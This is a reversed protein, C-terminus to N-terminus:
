SSLNLSPYSHPESLDHAGTNRFIIRANIAANVLNGGIHRQPFSKREQLVVLGGTYHRHGAQDYSKKTERNYALQRYLPYDAIAQSCRDRQLHVRMTDGSRVHYKISPEQVFTTPM